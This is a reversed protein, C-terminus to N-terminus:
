TEMQNNNALADSRMENANENGAVLQIASAAAQSVSQNNTQQSSTRNTTRGHEGGAGTPVRAFTYILQPRSRLMMLVSTCRKDDASHNAYRRVNFNTSRTCRFCAKANRCDAIAHTTSGCRICRVPHTCNAGLFCLPEACNACHNVHPYRLVETTIGFLRVNPRDTLREAITRDAIRIILRSGLIDDVIITQMDQVQLSRVLEARIEEKTPRANPGIRNPNRNVWNGRSYNFVAFRTGTRSAGQNYRIHQTATPGLTESFNSIFQDRQALSAFMVSLEGSRSAEDLKIAPGNGRMHAIDIVQNYNVTFGIALLAQTDIKVNYKPNFRCLSRYNSLKPEYFKGRADGSNKAAKLKDSPLNANPQGIAQNVEVPPTGSSQGGTLVNISDIASNGHIGSAKHNHVQNGPM